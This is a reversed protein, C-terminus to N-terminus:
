EKEKSANFRKMTEEVTKEILKDMLTEQAAPSISPRASGENMPAPTGAGQMMQWGQFFVKLLETPNGGDVESAQGLGIEWTAGDMEHQKIHFQQNALSKSFFPMGVTHKAETEAVLKGTNPDFQRDIGTSHVCGASAVCLALALYRM